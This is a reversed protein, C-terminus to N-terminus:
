TVVVGPVVVEVSKFLLVVLGDAVDLGELVGEGVSVIGGDCGVGGVLSEGTILELGSKSRYAGTM